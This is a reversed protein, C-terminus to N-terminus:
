IARYELVSGAGVYATRSSVRAALQLKFDGSPSAGVRLIGTIRLLGYSTDVRMGASLFAGASSILFETFGNTDGNTQDIVGQGSLSAMLEGSNLGSPWSVGFQFDNTTASCKVRVRADILYDTNAAPTFALGTIDVATTSTTSQESTTQLTTPGGVAVTDLEGGTLSLGAGLTIEEVAGTGATSRGLIRATAMELETASDGSVLYAGASVYAAVWSAGDYVRMELATTNFYLMGAALANGDNDTAPNSAKAGLYRDDFDDYSAAAAAASAAAQSAIATIQVLDANSLTEAFQQMQITLRDIVANLVSPDYSGQGEFDISQTYPVASRIVLEADLALASDLTVSGGPNADQDLNLSVTYDASDLVGMAGGSPTVEIQLDSAEFIKFVFAFPGTNSGTGTFPGASRVTSTVSM